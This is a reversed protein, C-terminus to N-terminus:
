LAFQNLPSVGAAAATTAIDTNYRTLATFERKYNILASDPVAASTAVAM